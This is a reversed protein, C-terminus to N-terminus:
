TKELCIRSTPYARPLVLVTWIMGTSYTAVYKQCYELYKHANWKKSGQSLINNYAFNQTELNIKTANTSRHWHRWDLTFYYIKIIKCQFYLLICWSVLAVFFLTLAECKQMGSYKWVLIKSIVHAQLDSSTGFIHLSRRYQGSCVAGLVFQYQGSCVQVTWLMCSSGLHKM